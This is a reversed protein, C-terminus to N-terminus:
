VTCFRASVGLLAGNTNTATSSLVVDFYGGPDSSLGAMQWLPQQRKDITCLGASNIYDTAVIASTNDIDTNFLDNDIVTGALAQNAPFDATNDSYYLGLVYAPDGGDAGSEFFLNKLYCNSRLRVLLYLSGTTVGASTTVYGSVEYLSNSAGAGGAKKTPPTADYGTIAPSKLTESAM